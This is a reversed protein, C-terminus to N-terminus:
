VVRIPDSEYFLDNVYTAYKYELPIALAELGLKGTARYTNVLTPIRSVISSLYGSLTIWPIFIETTELSTQSLPQITFIKNQPVSSALYKGETSLTITPKTVTITTNTPNDVAVDARLTIGSADVKYVRPKLTRVVSKDSIRKAGFIRSGYFLLGGLIGIALLNKM